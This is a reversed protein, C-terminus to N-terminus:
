KEEENEEDSEEENEEENEEEDLSVASFQSLFEADEEEPIINSLESFVEVDVKGVQEDRAWKELIERNSKTNPKDDVRSWHAVSSADYQRRCKYCDLDWENDGIYFITSTECAWCTL